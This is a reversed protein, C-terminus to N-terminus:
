SRRPCLRAETHDAPIATETEGIIEVYYSKELAFCRQADGETSYLYVGDELIRAWAPTEAIALHQAGILAFLALSLASAVILIIKKFM